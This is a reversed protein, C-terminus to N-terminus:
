SRIALLQSDSLKFQLEWSTFKSSLCFISFANFFAAKSKSACGRVLKSVSM